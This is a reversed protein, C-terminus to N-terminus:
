KGVCFRAFLANVITEPTATGTVAGFATWADKIDTYIVDLPLSTGGLADAARRLADAARKVADRQRVTTLILGGTFGNAAAGDLIMDLLKDLNEGTRASILIGDPAKIPQSTESQEVHRKDGNAEGNHKNKLLGLPDGRLAPFATKDKDNLLDCKNYVM